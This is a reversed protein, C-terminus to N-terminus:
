PVRVVICNLKEARAERCKAEAARRGAFPGGRIRWFHMGDREAPVIAWHLGKFLRPHDYPLAAVFSEARHRMQFAAIQINWPGPLGGNDAAASAGTAEKPKTPPAAAPEPAGANGPVSVAQGSTKEEHKGSGATEGSERAPTPTAEPAPTEPGEALKEKEEGGEGNLRQYVLRDRDPVEMGGPEAPPERHATEPAAVEIPAGAERQHVYLYILWAVFLTVVLAALGGLLLRREGLLRSLLGGPEDGSGDGGVPATWPPTGDNGSAGHESDEEAM